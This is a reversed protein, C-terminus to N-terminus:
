LGSLIREAASECEESGDLVNLTTTSTRSEGPELITLEGVERAHKRGLASNTSPEFATVYNGAALFRWQFFHPFREPDYELSVGWPRTSDYRNVLAVEVRGDTRPVMEHEFAQADFGRKPPDFRLYCDVDDAPVSPTTWLVSKSPILIESSEDLLPAGLNTHYLLMHSTPLHWVNEVRDTWSVSRGDLTTEVRRVLRLHEGLATVQDVEAEAFLHCIDGRWEEGYAVLRGPVTAVRGHMGYSIGNAHVAEGYTDLPDTEPFLVHDLGATIFLGGSFTKLWGFGDDVEAYAPSVFGTPSHWAISRGQYRAWAIDM